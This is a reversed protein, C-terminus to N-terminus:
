SKMRSIANLEEFEAKPIATKGTLIGQMENMFTEKDDLVEQIALNQMLEQKLNNLIVSLLVDDEEAAKKLLANVFEEDEKESYNGSEDKKFGIGDLAKQIHPLADKKYQGELKDLEDLADNANLKGSKLKKSLDDVQSKYKDNIEKPTVKNRLLDHEMSSYDDSGKMGRKKANKDAASKCLKAVGYMMGVDVAAGLAIVPALGPAVALGLAGFAVRAVTGFKRVTNIKQEKKYSEVASKMEPSVKGEFPLGSLASLTKESNKKLVDTEISSGESFTKKLSSVKSDFAKNLAKQLEKPEIKSLSLHLGEKSEKVSAGVAEGGKGGSGSDSKEVSHKKPDAGPHDKLYEKLAEESPFEMAMKIIPLLESRLHPNYYAKKVLKKLMPYGM